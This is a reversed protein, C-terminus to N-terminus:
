SPSPSGSVADQVILCYVTNEVNIGAPDSPVEDEDEEEDVLDGDEDLQELVQNDQLRRRVAPDPDKSTVENFLKPIDKLSINPDMLEEREHLVNLKTLDDSLLEEIEDGEGEDVLNETNNEANQPPNTEILHTDESINGRTQRGLEGEFEIDALYAPIIGSDKIENWKEENFVDGLIIKMDEPLKSFLEV